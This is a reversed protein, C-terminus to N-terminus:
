NTESTEDNVEAYSPTFNLLQITGRSKTIMIAHDLTGVFQKWEVMTITKGKKHVLCKKLM